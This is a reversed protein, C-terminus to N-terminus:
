ACTPRQPAGAASLEVLKTMTNFNRTTAVVKLKREFYNNDFSSDSLKTAYRTYVADGVIRVEEPSWDIAMFDALREPDPLSALLSFYLRPADANGFPNRELVCRFQEATRAVVAINGGFDEKIADHVLQEIESRSLSSAAIVNGSQIYTRVEALGANTLSARLPAMLVKNKGTPMVGRLLIVFTTMGARECVDM